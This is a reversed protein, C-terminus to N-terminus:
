LLTVNTMIIVVSTLLEIELTSKVNILVGTCIQGRFTDRSMHRKIATIACHESSAARNRSVYDALGRSHDDNFDCSYNHGIQAADLAASSM